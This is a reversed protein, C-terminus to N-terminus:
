VCHIYMGLRAEYILGAKLEESSMLLGQLITGEHLFPWSGKKLTNHNIVDSLIHLCTSLKTFLLCVHASGTVYSIIIIIIHIRYYYYAISLHQRQDRLPTAIYINSGFLMKHLSAKCAIIYILTAYSLQPVTKLCLSTTSFFASSSM